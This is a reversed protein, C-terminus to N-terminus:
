EASGDLAYIAVDDNEFVPTLTQPPTGPWRKALVLYRIHEQEGLAAAEQATCGSFLAANINQKHELVGRDVGMNTMAYTWGEMYAQRQSMASYGNSIADLVEPTHSTRNTAFMADQPANQRLWLMAEEDGATWYDDTVHPDSWGITSQLQGLGTRVYCGLGLVTSCLAAAGLIGILCRPLLHGQLLKELPRVALLSMFIM